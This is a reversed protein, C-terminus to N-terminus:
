ILAYVNVNSHSLQHNKPPPINLDAVRVSCAQSIEMNKGNKYASINTTVFLCGFSGHIFM